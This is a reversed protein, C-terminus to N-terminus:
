VTWSTGNCHREPFETTNDLLTFLEMLMEHLLVTLETETDFLGALEIVIDDLPEPFEIITDFLALSEM